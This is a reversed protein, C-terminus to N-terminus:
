YLSLETVPTLATGSLSPFAYYVLPLFCLFCFNFFDARGLLVGICFDWLLSGLYARWSWQMLASRTSKSVGAFVRSDQGARMSILPLGAVSNLQVEIFLSVFHDESHWM